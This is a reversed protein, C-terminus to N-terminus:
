LRNAVEEGKLWRQVNEATQLWWSEMTDENVFGTHPTMVVESRGAARGWRTTRWRSDEPLPEMWFVDLAAGRIKGKDLVDFLANEDILPGRSTNILMASPKLLALETASVINRSRSSLVYHISLVDASEFLAAKSPAVTFTGPPLGVSQAQADAKEQSLSSSWALVRMGFATAIKATEKGLRGLGLCAFTKGSLSTALPLSGQWGRTKVTLDDRPIANALGLILAWTHQTTAQHGARAAKSVPSPFGTGAVVVGADKCAPMDISANHLGTTLILRLNPLNNIVERPLPTRERMTSIINFPQLADILAKQDTRDPVPKRPDSYISIDFNSSAFRAIHPESLNQYDDLIVMRVNESTSEKSSAM